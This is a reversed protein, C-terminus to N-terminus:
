VNREKRLRELLEERPLVYISDDVNKNKYKASRILYALPSKSVAGVPTVTEQTTRFGARVQGRGKDTTDDDRQRDGGLVVPRTEERPVPVNVHHRKYHRADEKGVLYRAVIHGKVERIPDSETFDDRRQMFTVVVPPGRRGVSGKITDDRRYLESHKFARHRIEFAVRTRRYWYQFAVGVHMYYFAQIGNAVMRKRKVNRTHWTKWAGFVFNMSLLMAERLELFRAVRHEWQLFCRRLTNETMMRQALRLKDFHGRPKEHTGMRLAHRLSTPAVGRLDGLARRKLRRREDHSVVSSGEGPKHLHGQESVLVLTGGGRLQELVTNVHEKAAREKVEAMARQAEEEQATVKALMKLRRAEEAEEMEQAFWEKKLRNAQRLMHAALFGKKARWAAQVMLIKADDYAWQETLEQRTTRLQKVEDKTLDEPQKVLIERFRLELAMEKSYTAEFDVRRRNMELWDIFRQVENEAEVRHRARQVGELRERAAIDKTAQANRSNMEERTMSSARNTLAALADGSSNSSGSKKAQRVIRAAQDRRRFSAARDAKKMNRQMDDDLDDVSNFLVRDREREREILFVLSPKEFTSEGTQPNHWYPEGSRKDTFQNWTEKGRTFVDNPHEEALSIGSSGAGM